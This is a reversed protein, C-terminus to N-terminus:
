HIVYLAEQRNTFLLNTTTSITSNLLHYVQRNPKAAFCFEM